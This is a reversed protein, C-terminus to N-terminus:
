ATPETDGNTAEEQKKIYKKYNLEEALEVSWAKALAIVEATPDASDSAIAIANFIKLYEDLKRLSKAATGADKDAGIEDDIWSEVQKAAMLAYPKYEAYKEVSAVKDSDTYNSLKGYMYFVIACMVGLGLIIAFEM